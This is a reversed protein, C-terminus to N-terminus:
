GDAPVTDLRTLTMAALFMATVQGDARRRFVVTEGSERFGPGVTFTDQDGAPTLEPRYSPVGPDTLVLAGDRWELRLTVDLEPLSYLGLLPQVAAPVPV